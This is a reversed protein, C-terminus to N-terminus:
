TGTLALLDAEPEDVATWSVLLPEKVGVTSAFNRLRAMMSDSVEHGRAILLAGSATRVDDVLVMGPHLNQLTVARRTSGELALGRLKRCAEVLVPDLSPDEKMGSILADFDESASLRRELVTAARLLREDLASAAVAVPSVADRAELLAIVPELRPIHRLLQRTVESSRAVMRREAESMGEGAFWRQATDPPLTVAGLQSLMAAVEVPWRRELGVEKALATVIRKLRRSRGFATPNALALTESLADVSGTLTRELLEKEARILHRQEVGAELAALLSQRSAPKFLFRFINGENVANVAAELDSQGSLIMRVADPQQARARKLFEAGNMVPMRMDSVVVDFADGQLAQLGEEPGGALTLEYRGRLCRNIGELVNSEDDVFLVRPLESM